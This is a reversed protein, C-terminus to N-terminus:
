WRIEEDWHLVCGGLNGEDPVRGLESFDERLRGAVDPDLRAGNDYGARRQSQPEVLWNEHNLGQSAVVHLLRGRTLKSIMCSRPEPTADPDEYAGHSIGTATGIM